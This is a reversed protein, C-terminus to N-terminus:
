STYSEVEDFAGEGVVVGEDHTGEVIFEEVDFFNGVVHRSFNESTEVARNERVFSTGRIWQEAGHGTEYVSSARIGDDAVCGFEFCSTDM